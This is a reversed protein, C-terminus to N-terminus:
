WPGSRDSGSDLLLTNPHLVLHVLEMKLKEMAFSNVNLKGTLVSIDRIEEVQVFLQADSGHDSEPAMSNLNDRM